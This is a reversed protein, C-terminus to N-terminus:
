AHMLLLNGKSNSSKGLWVTSQPSLDGWVGAQLFCTWYGDKNIEALHTQETSKTCPCFISVIPSDNNYHLVECAARIGELLQDHITPCLKKSVAPPSDVYVEIYSFSDILTITCPHNPFRFKVCNKALLVPDGSPLLVEWKSEKMSYVVLCCFVGSRICGSPFRIAMPSIADSSKRHKVLETPPISKLLSPMFFVAKSLPCNSEGVLPIPAIVLLEKMILLMDEPSFIGEVYHKQFHDLKLFELTIIGEDAMRKLEGDIAGKTDANRLLIAYETLESIKDLPIQANVFVTDPLISRYYHAICVENFFDLAAELDENEFDFRLALLLCERKKLVGRGLQLCLVQLNFDLYFWWVPVKIELPHCGEIAKRINEAVTITDDERSLTNIAFIPHKLSENYVVQKKMSASLMDLVAKNKEEIFDLSALQDLFTGVFMLKPKKEQSCHSEICRILSKLTEGLTMHSTHPTGVLQGEKYYEDLPYSSFDDILRTVIAAVSIHRIFLPSIDHFQPQGGSDSIYVWTSDFLEGEQNTVVRECEQEGVKLQHEVESVLSEVAKSIAEDLVTTTSGTDFSGTEPIGSIRERSTLPHPSSVAMKQLAGAIRRGRSLDGSKKPQKAIIQALLSMLKEQSIEVWGRGTTKYKSSSVPRINVRVPKEICGTSNRVHPPPQDTLLLKLNTKGSGAVGSLLMNIINLRVFGDKMADDFLRKSDLYFNLFISSGHLLLLFVLVLPLKHRYESCM